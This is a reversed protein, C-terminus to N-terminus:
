APMLELELGLVLFVFGCVEVLGLTLAPSTRFQSFDSVYTFAGDLTRKWQGETWDTVEPHESKQLLKM